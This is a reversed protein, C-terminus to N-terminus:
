ARAMLYTAVRLASQYDSERAGRSTIAVFGEGCVFIALAGAVDITDAAASWPTGLFASKLNQWREARESNGIRPFVILLEAVRGLALINTLEWQVWATKGAILIIPQSRAIYSKVLEQWESEAVYLRHAGIQPLREGPKGIAVFPGAQTLEKGIMEELRKRRWFLRPVLANPPISAIDDAFSRLLLVPPKDKLIIQDRRRLNLRTGMRWVARAAVLVAALVILGFSQGGATAMEAFDQYRVVAEGTLGRHVMMMPLFVVWILLLLLGILGLVLSQGIWKAFWWLLAGLVVLVGLHVTVGAPSMIAIRFQPIALNVGFSRTMQHTPPLDRRLRHRWLRLALVGQVILLLLSIVLIFFCIVGAYQDALKQVPGGDPDYGPVLVGASVVRVLGSGSIVAIAALAVLGVTLLRLRFTGCGFVYTGILVVSAVMIAEMSGRSHELASHAMWYIAAVDTLAGKKTSDKLADDISSSGYGTIDRLMAEVLADLQGAALILLSGGIVLALLMTVHQAWWLGRWLRAYQSVDLTTTESM